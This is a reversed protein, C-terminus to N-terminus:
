ASKAHSQPPSYLFQFGSGRQFAAFPKRQDLSEVSFSQDLCGATTCPLYGL